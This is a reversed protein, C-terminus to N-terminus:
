TIDIILGCTPCIWKTPILKSKFGRGILQIYGIAFMEVEEGYHKCLPCLKRSTQKKTEMKIVKQKKM